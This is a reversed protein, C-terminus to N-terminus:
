DSPVVNLQQEETGYYPYLNNGPGNNDDFNQRYWDDVEAEFTADDNRLPRSARRPQPHAETPKATPVGGPRAEESVPGDTPRRGILEFVCSRRCLVWGLLAPEGSSHM